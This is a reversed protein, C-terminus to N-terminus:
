VGFKVLLKHATLSWFVAKTDFTQCATNRSSVLVWIYRSNVQWFYLFHHIELNNQLKLCHTMLLLSNGCSYNPFSYLCLSFVCPTLFYTGLSSYSILYQSSIWYQIWNNLYITTNLYNKVLKNTQKQLHLCKELQVAKKWKLNKKKKPPTLNIKSYSMKFVHFESKLNQWFFHEGLSVTRGRHPVVHFSHRWPAKLDYFKM